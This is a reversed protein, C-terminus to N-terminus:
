FRYLANITLMNSDEVLHFIGIIEINGFAVGGGFRFGINTETDSESGFLDSEVKSMDYYLGLGAQGFFKVKGTFTYRGDGAFCLRTLSYDWEYEVVGLLSYEEGGTFHYLEVNGVIDIQPRISYFVNGKLGFGVNYVDSWDGLPIGLGAGVGFTINKTESYSPISFCFILLIVSFLCNIKKM